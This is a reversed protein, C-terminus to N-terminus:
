QSPSAQPVPVAISVPVPVTLPLPIPLPQGPGVAKKDGLAKITTLGSGSRRELQPQGWYDVSGVGSISVRLNETVWLTANGIGSISVAARTARLQEAMLRGKGTVRLSLEGVQGALQGDGAGDIDFRLSSVALEDFRAQGAGSISVGLREARIPGAARLDSAGSITLQTPQRMQVEIQLRTHNWFKWGGAPRIVLRNGSLAVEVADQTNADGAIFVQDREGQSLSVQASGAVELREFPGPTYLRGEAPQAGALLPALSLLFLGCHRWGSM